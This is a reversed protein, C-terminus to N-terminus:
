SSGILYKSRPQKKPFDSCRLVLKPFMSKGIDYIRLSNMNVFREVSSVGGLTITNGKGTGTNTGTGICRKVCYVGCGTPSGKGTLQKRDM